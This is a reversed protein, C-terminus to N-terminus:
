RRPPRAAPARWSRWRGSCRRPRSAAAGYEEPLNAGMMGAEGLAALQGHVFRAHEDTEAALPAIRDACLRELVDCFLREEESLM